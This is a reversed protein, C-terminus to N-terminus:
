IYHCDDRVSGYLDMAGVSRAQPGPGGERAERAKGDDRGSWAGSVRAGHLRARVPGDADYLLSRAAVVSHQLSLRDPQLGLRDLSRDAVRRPVSRDLVGDMGHASHVRASRVDDVPLLRCRARGGDPIRCAGPAQRNVSHCGTEGAIAAAHCAWDSISFGEFGETFESAPRLEIEEPTYGMSVISVSLTQRDYPFERLDMRASLTGILRQNYTVTGDPEVTVVLPLLEDVDRENLINLNPHWVDTLALRRTTAGALRSDKWTVRIYIDATFEQKVNDIAFVDAVFTRVEVPTPVGVPDPRQTQVLAKDVAPPDAKAAGAGAAVSGLAVLAFLLLRRVPNAGKFALIM